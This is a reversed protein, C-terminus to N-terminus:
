KFIFPQAKLVQFLDSQLLWSIGHERLGFSAWSSKGTGPLASCATHEAQGRSHPWPTPRAELGSWRLRGGQADGGAGAAGSRAWAPSSPEEPWRLAAGVERCSFHAKPKRVAIHAQHHRGLKKAKSLYM